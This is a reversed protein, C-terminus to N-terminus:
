ATAESTDKAQKWRRVGAAGSVLAGGLLMLNATMPEPVAQGRDGMAIQAGTNDYAYATLHYTMKDYSNDTLSGEIWGYRLADGQSQDKFEFAFYKDTFTGQNPGAGNSTRVTILGYSHQGGGISGWKVGANLRQAFPHGSTVVTKIRFYPASSGFFGLTHTKAGLFQSTAILASANKGPLNTLFVNPVDGPAFGIDQNVNTVIIGADAETSGLAMGVASLTGLAAVRRTTERRRIPQMM